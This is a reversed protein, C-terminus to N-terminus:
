LRERVAEAVSEPNIQLVGGTWDERDIVEGNQLLPAVRPTYEFLMDKPNFVTIRHPLSKVVDPFFANYAFAAQHGWEYADGARLTEALNEAMKALTLGPARYQNILSWIHTFRTGAEDLPVPQFMDAFGAQEDDSLVLASMMLIQEVHDSKQHAMEVAVKAGTHNGFIDVKGIDFSEMAQWILRAYDQITVPPDGPPLASEGHGPSDISIVTRDQGTLEIFPVFERSSRPSQHLCLLPRHPSDPPGDVRRYHLQGIDTDAFGRRIVTM